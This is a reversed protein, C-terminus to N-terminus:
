KVVSFSNEKYTMPKNYAISIYNELSLGFSHAILSSIYLHLLLFISIFEPECATLNVPSVNNWKVTKGAAKNETNHMNKMEAKFLSQAM